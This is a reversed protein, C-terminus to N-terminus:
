PKKSAHVIAMMDPISTVKERIKELADGKEIEVKEIAKWDDFTVYDL